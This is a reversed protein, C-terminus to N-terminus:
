NNRHHPSHEMHHRGREEHHPDMMGNHHEEYPHGREMHDDDQHHERHYWYEEIMEIILQEDKKYYTYIVEDYDTLKEVDKRAADSLQFATPGEATEIEITHPDAQGNYIGIDTKLEDETTAESKGGDNSESDGIDNEIESMENRGESDDNSAGCATIGLLLVFAFVLSIYINRM